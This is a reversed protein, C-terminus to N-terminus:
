EKCRPRSTALLLRQLREFHPPQRRQRAKVRKSWSQGTESNGADPHPTGDPPAPNALDPRASASVTIRNPGAPQHYKTPSIQLRATTQQPLVLSRAFM